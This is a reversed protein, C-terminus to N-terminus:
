SEGKGTGREHAERHWEDLMRRGGWGRAYGHGRGGWSLARVMAFILFIFLLPFLFGFLPFLGFGFAHWFYPHAALGTAGAAAGAAAGAEYAVGAVGGLLLVAILTILIGRAMDIAEKFRTSGYSAFPECRSTFCDHVRQAFTIALSGVHRWLANVRAECM